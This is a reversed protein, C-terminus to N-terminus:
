KCIIIEKFIPYIKVSILVFNLFLKKHQKKKCLLNKMKVMMVGEMLGSSPKQVLVLDQESSGWRDERAAAAQARLLCGPPAM